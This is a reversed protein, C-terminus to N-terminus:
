LWLSSGTARNSVEALIRNFACLVDGGKVLKSLDPKDKDWINPEEVVEPREPKQPHIVRLLPATPQRPPPLRLPRAQFFMEYDRQEEM